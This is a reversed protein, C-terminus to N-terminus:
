KKRFETKLQSIFVSLQPNTNDKKWIANTLFKSRNLPIVPLGVPECAVINEDLLFLFSDFNEDPKPVTDTRIFGLDIRGNQIQRRIEKSSGYFLNLECSPVRQSFHELLENLFSVEETHEFAISIMPSKQSFDPLQSNKEFFLSTKKLIFWCLVFVAAVACILILEKM